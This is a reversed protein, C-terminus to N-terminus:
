QSQLYLRALQDQSFGALQQAPIPQSVGSIGFKRLNFAADSEGPQKTANPDGFVSALLQESRQEVFEPQRVISEQVSM